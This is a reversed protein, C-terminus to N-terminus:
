KAFLRLVGQFDAAIIVYDAKPCLSKPAPAFTAATIISSAVPNVPALVQTGVSSNLIRASEWSNNRDKRANSNQKLRWIYFSANESGCIIYKHDHSVSARIQSSGNVYGKYKCLLTLDRLEYLRIRSDNTTVLIKDEDSRGGNISEIGTVKNSGRNGSSRAARSTVQSTSSSTRVHLQTSYKLLATKYFIVRGDYTGIVAFDGNKVFTSATILGHSLKGTSDSTNRNEETGAGSVESWLIVRRDPIDWLRIKGDLSGSLFCRDDKPHFSITTVFDPHRFTCLCEVRSVHWLRVTKDMSSSLLFHNKSWCIDLVDATHGRYAAFLLLPGEESLSTDEAWNRSGNFDNSSTSGSGSGGGPIQQGSAKTRLRTFYKWARSSCYVHLLQDQGAVALLQGDLSWKMCWVAGRFDNLEQTLRLGAFDPPGKKNHVKLRVQNLTTGSNSSSDGIYDSTLEITKHSGAAAATKNKIEKIVSRGVRGVKRFGAKVKGKVAKSSDSKKSNTDEDGEYSGVEISSATGIDTDEAEDSAYDQTMKMLHLSIPDCPLSEAQSVPQSSPSIPTESSIATQADFFEDDDSSSSSEEPSNAPSNAAM